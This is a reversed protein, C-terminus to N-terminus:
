VIRSLLNFRGFQSCSSELFDEARTLLQTSVSALDCPSRRSHSRTTTSPNRLEDAFRAEM